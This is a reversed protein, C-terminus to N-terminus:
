MGRMEQEGILGSYGAPPPAGDCLYKVPTYLTGHEMWSKAPYQDCIGTLFCVVYRRLYGPPIAKRLCGHLFSLNRTKALRPTTQFRGPYPIM